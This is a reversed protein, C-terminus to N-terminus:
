ENTKIIWTELIIVIIAIISVIGKISIFAPNEFRIEPFSFVGAIMAVFGVVVTTLHAFNDSNLGEKKVKKFITLKGELILGIGVILMLLAEVYNGLDYYFLSESVIGIFGIISVISLVSVFYHSVKIKSKM